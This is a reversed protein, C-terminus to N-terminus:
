HIGGRRPVMGYRARHSGVANTAAILASIEVPSRRRDWCWADGLPRTMAHRAAADLLPQGDHALRRDTVADYFTGCCTVIEAAGLEAVPVGLLVLEDILAGAGARRDAVLHWPRPLNMVLQVIEPAVTTSSGTLETTVVQLTSPDADAPGAVAVTVSSRDAVIDLAVVYPAKPSLAGSTRADPGCDRWAAPPIKATLALTPRRCLYSRDFLDAPLDARRRAVREIDITHGLAPMTRAWVDPDDRDADDDASWEFYAVRTTPDKLSLEGIEQYHQLLGDTGDGVTSVIWLQPDPRTITTPELATVVTLDNHAFAEDLVALDLTLGHGAEDTHAVTSIRSGNVYTISESGNSRRAKFSGVLEPRRAIRKDYLEDILRRKSMQRDQATYIADIDPRRLTATVLEPELLTTKGQQRPVVLVVTEYRLRIEGSDTEYYENAVDAVYRQWPMFATRSIMLSAAEVLPGRTPAATRATAHRPEATVTM